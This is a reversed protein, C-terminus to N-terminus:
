YKHGNYTGLNPNTSIPLSFSAISAAFAKFPVFSSPLCTNTELSKDKAHKTPASQKKNAGFTSKSYRYGIIVMWDWGDMEDWLAEKIM